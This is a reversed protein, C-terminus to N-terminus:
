CGGICKKTQALLYKLNSLLGSFIIIIKLVIFNGGKSEKLKNRSNQM